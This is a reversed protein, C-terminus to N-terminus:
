TRRQASLQTLPFEPYGSLSTCRGYDPNPPTLFGCITRLTAEQTLSTRWALGTRRVRRCFCGTLVQYMTVPVGHLRVLFQLEYTGDGQSIWRTSACPAMCQWVWNKDSANPNLPDLINDNSSYGIPGAETSGYGTALKVGAAVLKNGSEM